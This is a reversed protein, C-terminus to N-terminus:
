RPSMTNSMVFASSGFSRPREGTYPVGTSINTSFPMAVITTPSQYPLAGSPEGNWPETTRVTSARSGAFMFTWPSTWTFPQARSM